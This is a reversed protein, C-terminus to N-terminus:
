PPLLRSSEPELIFFEGGELKNEMYCAVYLSYRFTLLTSPSVKM